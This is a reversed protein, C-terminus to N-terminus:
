SDDGHVTIHALPGHLPVAMQVMRNRLAMLAESTLVQSTVHERWIDRVHQTTIGYLSAIRRPHTELHLRM